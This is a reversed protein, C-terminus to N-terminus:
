LLYENQSKLGAAQKVKASALLGGVGSPMVIDVGIGISSEKPNKSLIGM